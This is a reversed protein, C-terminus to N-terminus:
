LAYVYEPGQSADTVSRKQYSIQCSKGMLYKRLFAGNYIDLSNRLISWGSFM